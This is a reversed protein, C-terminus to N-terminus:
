KNGCGGKCGGCGTCRKGQFLLGYGICAVALVAIAILHNM